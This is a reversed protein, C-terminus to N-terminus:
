VDNIIRFVGERALNKKKTYATGGKKRVLLNRKWVFPRASHVVCFVCCVDKKHLRPVMVNVKTM